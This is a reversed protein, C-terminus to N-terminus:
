DAGAAAYISENTIATVMGDDWRKVRRHSALLRLARAVDRSPAKVARAIDDEHLPQKRTTAATVVAVIRDDLAPVPTSPAERQHRAAPQVNRLAAAREFVRGSDHFHL